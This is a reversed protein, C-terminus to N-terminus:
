CGNLMNPNREFRTGKPGVFVSSPYSNAFTVLDDGNPGNSSVAVKVVTGGGGETFTYGEKFAWTGNYVKTCSEGAETNYYVEVYKFTGDTLMWIRYISFGYSGGEEYRELMLDGASSMASQGAADDRAVQSPAVPAGQTPAPMGTAPGEPETQPADQDNAPLKPAAPKKKAKKVCKKTKKGNKKKVTKLVYGKKCKKPAAEAQAPAVATFAFVTLLLAAIRAM